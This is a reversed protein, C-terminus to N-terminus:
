FHLEASGFGKVEAFFGFIGPFGITEVFRDGVIEAAPTEQGTAQDFAAHTKHLDPATRLAGNVIPVVVGTNLSFERRHGGADIVGLEGEAVEADVPAEGIKVAFDNM